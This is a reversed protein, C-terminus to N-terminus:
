YRDFEDHYDGFYQMYEVHSMGLEAMGRMLDQRVQDVTDKGIKTTLHAELLPYPYGTIRGDDAYAALGSLTRVVMDHNVHGPVEVKFARPSRRHLRTIYQDGRQKWPRSVERDVLDDTGSIRVAWPEPVALKKALGEAAPVVPHGGGWTLATRKTVAALLVGRLSCLNMLRTLIEGHSAHRVRLTGDLLILDGADLSEAMEMAVWYELTDRMVAANRLPDDHDLPAKPPSGFCDSFLAAFDENCGGPHAAVTYLPTTARRCRVGSRYSSASARIAAVAFSGGDAILANSGDVACVTGEFASPFTLFSEPGFGGSDAFREVLDPPAFRRIQGAIQKVSERYEDYPDM